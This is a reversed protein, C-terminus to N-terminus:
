KDDKDLLDPDDTYQKLHEKVLENVQEAYRGSVIDEMTPDLDAFANNMAEQMKKYLPSDCDSMMEMVKDPYPSKKDDAQRAYKGNLIDERSPALGAGDVAKELKKRFGCFEFRKLLGSLPLSGGM